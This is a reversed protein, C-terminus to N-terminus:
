RTNEDIWDLVTKYWLEANAPKAVFHGEDPFYLMKSKVGQRQLATFLQFGESVDLRYDLQGHIVLTPTKFNRAFALPSWKEYLEPKQYPTGGFEWEPFWLEETTGYMSKTNFVGDHSVLCRFRNTHGLIWNIMYGGYSAGAAAVRSGDIYPFTKLVYDVGAMLDTYPKGGWDKSIEDTFRQGYGTSGRPNLLVVVYGRSAFLQANWRYHFQDGWQGQPGGHVLLIMPYQKSGDFAPPKVLFGHIRTGGAGKFWFEEKANMAIGGLREDNVSTLKLESKAGADIRYLEVPHNIMERAAVVSKGDPLVRISHTYGTVVIPEVHQTEITMKFLSENGKDDANFFVFKSDPSWAVENLSHDFKETLNTCKGTAREFLILQKQDAEFGARRMQLYALYKGDPSYLPQSDNGQNETVRKPVGGTVSVVFIDNNTSTAVVPDTNREFAIEKSDPSWAFSWNGGLDVPPTDYDGPTLDFPKGGGVPLVFLHNRKGDKWANWIRYPLKDFIKAKVKSKEVEEARKANSEDDTCDPYVESSFAFWRGDPSVQLDSAGTSISSIKRAEGGAVNVAWIQAEGDRTSIFALTKGDPLWRPNFNAGKATTLQQVTGGSTPVTYINSNTKNEAKNHYTVVFAITSGDPSVQPDGVRGLRIFEDFTLPRQAQGFAATVVFLILLLKHLYRM